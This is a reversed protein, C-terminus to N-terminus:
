PKTFVGFCIGAAQTDYAMVFTDSRNCDGPVCHKIRDHGSGISDCIDDAGVDM